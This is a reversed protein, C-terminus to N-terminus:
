RGGNMKGILNIVKKYSNDNSERELYNYSQEEFVTNGNYLFKCVEISEDAIILALLNYADMIMKANKPNEIDFDHEKKM